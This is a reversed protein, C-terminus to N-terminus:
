CYKGSVTPFCRLDAAVPFRWASVTQMCLNLASVGLDFWPLLPRADQQSM